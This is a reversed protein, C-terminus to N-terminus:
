AVGSHLGLIPRYLVIWSGAPLLSGDPGLLPEALHVPPTHGTELRELRCYFLDADRRDSFRRVSWPGGKAPLELRKVGTSVSSPGRAATPRDAMSEGPSQLSM